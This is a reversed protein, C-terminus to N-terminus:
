EQAELNAIAEQATAVVSMSITDTLWMAFWRGDRYQVWAGSARIAALCALADPDAVTSRLELVHSLYGMVLIMVAVYAVALIIGTATNLDQNGGVLDFKYGMM